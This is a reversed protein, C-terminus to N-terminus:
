GAVWGDGVGSQLGKSGTAAVTCLAVHGHGFSVDSHSDVCLVLGLEIVRWRLLYLAILRLQPVAGGATSGETRYLYKELAIWVTRSTESAM